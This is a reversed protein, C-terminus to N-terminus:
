ILELDDVDDLDHMETMRILWSLRTGLVRSMSCMVTVGNMVTMKNTETLWTINTVRTM